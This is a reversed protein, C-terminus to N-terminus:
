PIIDFFDDIKKNFITKMIDTGLDTAEQITLNSFYQFVPAVKEPDYHTKNGYTTQVVKSGKNEAFTKLQKAILLQEEELVEYEISIKGNKHVFYICDLSNTRIGVFEFDLKHQTLKELLGDLDELKIDDFQEKQEIKKDKRKYMAIIFVVMFVAVRLFISLHKTNM